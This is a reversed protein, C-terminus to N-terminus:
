KGEDTLKSNGYAASEFSAPVALVEIARIVLGVHEVCCLICELGGAGAWGRVGDAHRLYGVLRQPVGRLKVRHPGLIAGVREEQAVAVAAAVSGM